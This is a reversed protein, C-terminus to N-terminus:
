GYDMLRSPRCLNYKMLPSYVVDNLVATGVNIGNINMIQGKITGHMTTIEQMGNGVTIAQGQFKDDANPVMGITHPTMHVTLATDGIWICPDESMQVMGLFM